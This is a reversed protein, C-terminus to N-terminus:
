KASKSHSGSIVQALTTEMKERDTALPPDVSLASIRARQEVSLTVDLSTAIQEFQELNRAGIIPATIAPHSAVWAVALAASNVGISAAYDAFRSAIEAYEANKYRERYMASQRIRGEEGRLYKGTLLGAAIPSYPFVALGESQAMPLIEVESQRKVLNYMPQLCVIPALGMQASLGLAKMTQWASFNSVGCYLVKGQQVLYSLASLSEEISTDVDWHHLYLIDLWDTKLRKLSKEVGLIMHRRSSGRDNPGPGSPFYVKSALVIDERKEALWHGVIEETLGKNYIDAIDFFNIGLEFARSMIARATDEDAENGFTMTGLCLRSVRVGTQGLLAYEM